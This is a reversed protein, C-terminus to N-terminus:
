NFVETEFGAVDFRNQTTVLSAQQSSVSNFTPNRTNRYNHQPRQQPHTQYHINGGLQGSQQQWTQNFQRRKAKFLWVDPNMSKDYDDSKIDIRYTFSRVEDPFSTLFEKNTVRIGKNMLFAKLQDTTADKSVGTAVLSM